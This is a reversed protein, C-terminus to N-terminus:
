LCDKWQVMRQCEIRHKPFKAQEAFRSFATTGPVARQSVRLRCWGQWHRAGDKARAFQRLLAAPWNRHVVGGYSTGFNARIRARCLWVRRDTQQAHNHDYGRAFSLQDYDQDIRAGLTEPRTFDMPTGRVPEIAGTPVLSKDIPTFKDANITVVHGLVDGQNHGALNFFTHTTFNVVTTKDAAVADYAVIFENEETVSYIVRLPLTGPYGEEDDKFVYTMQVM